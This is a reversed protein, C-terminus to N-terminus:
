LNPNEFFTFKNKFISQLVIQESHNIYIFNNVANKIQIEDILIDM